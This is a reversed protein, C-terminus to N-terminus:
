QQEDQSEDSKGGDAPRKLEERRREALPPAMKELVALEIEAAVDPNEVLFRVANLRGQGLRMDGYSFWAGSKDVVHQEVGLDIIDGDRSVGKDFMLDFEAIRFPPAVKNKAVKARCRNGVSMDGDKISGIRRIEIRVSSYFKLAQGGPTTMPSGFMVGIKMRTQNIFVVATRSKSIIAALKRLARSMLRAQLGITEDGMEGEIEARPVLAAVSDVVIIDLANSRVLAEVVDLAQEGSDPQNVLLGEMDVGVKRAYEPDIAHEADVFAAVGGTKQANAVLQLALTTKGSAEPGYVEVVRGRPIGGVGLAIDLSLSGSSISSVDQPWDSMRMITGRGYQKEIQSLTRDLAKERSDKENDKDKAAAM